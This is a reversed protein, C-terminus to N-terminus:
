PNSLDEAYSVRVVVQAQVTNQGDPRAGIDRGMYEIESVKGGLTRDGKFLARKIDRIMQHAKDNPNDPDCFDFADIVFLMEVKVLSGNMRAAKDTVDDNGEVIQICPLEDEAPVKRRGRMVKTGIDTESGNTVAIQSLRTFVEAAVDAARVYVTM